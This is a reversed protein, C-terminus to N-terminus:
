EAKESIETEVEQALEEPMVMREKVKVSLQRSLVRKM